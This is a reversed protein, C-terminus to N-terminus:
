RDRSAINGTNNWALQKSQTHSVTTCANWTSGASCLNVFMKFSIWGYSKVAARNTKAIASPTEYIAKRRINVFRCM